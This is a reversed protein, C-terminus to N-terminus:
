SETSASVVELYFTATKVTVLGEGRIEIEYTGPQISSSTTITMESSFTTRAKNTSFSVYVGPPEGSTSLAVPEPEANKSESVEVDVVVQDGAQLSVSDPFLYVDFGYVMEKADVFVECTDGVITKKITVKQELGEELIIKQERIQCDSVVPVPKIEGFKTNIFEEEVISLDLAAYTNEDEEYINIIYPIGSTKFSTTFEGPIYGATTMATSIHNLLTIPEAYSLYFYSNTIIGNAPDFVTAYVALLLITEAIFKIFDATLKTM